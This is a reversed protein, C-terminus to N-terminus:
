NSSPTNHQQSPRAPEPRDDETQDFSEFERDAAKIMDRATRASILGVHMAHEIASREAVVIQKRAERTERLTRENHDTYLTVSEKSMEEIRNQIEDRLRAYVLSSVLHDRSLREIEAMGASAAIQRVRIRAFDDDEQQAIGLVNLLPRISFGQFVITFAVVGFIMALLQTRYPFGVPLSLGLALALAGRIGGAVLVHQWRLSIREAFRNSIPVLGYVSLVRGALVAGITLLTGQWAHLLDHIHVELGILLFVISNIVFSFYEWFSWLAIRTHPSMGIRATFNGTMLGAAVVAIVGSLHLGNAALYTGYALVTTLTIEIRPEDIRQIVKSALYGFIAGVAVGGLSEIFFERIGEGIGLHGSRFGSLLILFLVAATGDNLLSEGEVIVSLRSTIGAERFIALVSIPDTAAIIAGFILATWLPLALVWHVLYGTTLAAVLVGLTALLLIPVANRRLRSAQIKLSGEFLLPPLFIPLAVDPTLWDPRQAILHSVIPWNYSGLALGGLVLAVTYPVRLHAAVVAIISAAILLSLLFEVALSPPM